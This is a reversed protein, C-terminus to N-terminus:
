FCAKFFFCLFFGCGAAGDLQDYFTARQRGGSPPDWRCGTSTFQPM